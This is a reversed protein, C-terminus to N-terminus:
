SVNEDGEAADGEEESDGCGRLWGWRALSPDELSLGDDVVDGGGLFDGGGGFSLRSSQLDMTVGVVALVDVLAEDLEPVAKTKM